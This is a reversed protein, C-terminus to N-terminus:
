SLFAFRGAPSIGFILAAIEETLKRSSSEAFGSLPARWTACDSKM